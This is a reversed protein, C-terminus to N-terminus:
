GRIEDSAVEPTEIEIEDSANPMEITVKPLPVDDILNAAQEGYHHGLVFAAIVILIYILKRFM